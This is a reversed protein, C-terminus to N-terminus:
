PNYMGYVSLLQKFQQNTRHLARNYSAKYRLLRSRSKVQFKKKIEGQDSVVHHQCINITNFSKNYSAHVNNVHWFYDYYQSYEANIGGITNSSEASLSLASLSTKTRFTEDSLLEMNERQVQRFIRNLEIVWKTRKLLNESNIEDTNIGFGTFEIIRIIPTHTHVTYPM